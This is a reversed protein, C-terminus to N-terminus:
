VVPEVAATLILAEEGAVAVTHEFHAAPQGSAVVVTWGDDLEIADPPGICLMPEIAFTMGPRLLTGSGPAGANSVHPDEHMSRGIGHGGYGLIVGYGRTEAYTQIAHSVDGMRRGERVEHYGAWFAGETAEILARKEESIEGVAHTVAADAHFGDLKVGIDISIIDGEVLVRDGPIGHVIQENVSACISRPYGHYGLFSPYGGADVILEHVAADIEGTSVGPRILSRALAHARAVVLGSARMKDIDAPSKLVIPM